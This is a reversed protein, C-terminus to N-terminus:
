TLAADLGSLSFWHFKNRAWTRQKAVFYYCLKSSFNIDQLCAPTFMFRVKILKKIRIDYNRGFINKLFFVYFFNAVYDFESFDFLFM